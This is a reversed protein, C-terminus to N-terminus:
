RKDFGRTEYIVDDENNEDTIRVYDWRDEYYEILGNAKHQPIQYRSYGGYHTKIEIIYGPVEEYEVMM